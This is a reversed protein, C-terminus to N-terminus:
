GGRSGEKMEKESGSVGERRGGLGEEVKGNAKEQGLSSWSYQRCPHMIRQLLTLEKDTTGDSLFTDRRVKDCM